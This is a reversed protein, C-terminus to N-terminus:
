SAAINNKFVKKNRTAAGMEPTNESAKEAYVGRTREKCSNQKIKKWKSQQLEGLFM